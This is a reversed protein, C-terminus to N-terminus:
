RQHMMSRATLYKAELTREQIPIALLVKLAKEHDHRSWLLKAFKEYTAPSLKHFHILCCHEFLLWTILRSNITSSKSKLTPSIPSSELSLYHPRIEGSVVSFRGSIISLRRHDEQPNLRVLRELSGDRLVPMNDGDLETHRLASRWTKLRVDV